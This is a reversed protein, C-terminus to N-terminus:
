DTGAPATAAWRELVRGILPIRLDRGIAATIMLAIWIAAGVAFAAQTVGPGVYACIYLVAPWVTGFVIAQLGHFRLRQTAGKAYAFLGTVPLLLYALAAM